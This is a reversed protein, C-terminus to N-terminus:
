IVKKKDFNILNANKDKLNIILSATVKEKNNIKIKKPKFFEIDPILIKKNINCNALYIEIRDKYERM